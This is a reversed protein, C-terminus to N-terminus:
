RRAGRRDAVRYRAGPHRAHFSGAEVKMSVDDLAVLPGFTKTMGITELAPARVGAAPARM